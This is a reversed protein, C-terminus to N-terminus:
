PTEKGGGPAGDGPSGQIVRVYSVVDWRDEPTLGEAQPPMARGGITIVGFIRGDTRGRIAQYALDPADPFGKAQGVPGGGHGEKGHCCACREAFIQKGREVGRPTPAGPRKIDDADDIDVLPAEAGLPVAHEPAARPISQPRHAPSYWMDTRWDYDCGSL